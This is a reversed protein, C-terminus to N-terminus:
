RTRHGIRLKWCAESAPRELFIFHICDHHTAGSVRESGAPQKEHQSTHCPHVHLSASILCNQTQRPSGLQCSDPRSPADDTLSPLVCRAHHLHDLLRILPCATIRRGFVNGEEGVSHTYSQHTTCVLPCTATLISVAARHYYLPRAIILMPLYHHWSLHSLCWMACARRGGRGAGCVLLV